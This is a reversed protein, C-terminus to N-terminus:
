AKKAPQVAIPLVVISQQNLRVICLPPSFREASSCKKQECARVVEIIVNLALLNLIATLM